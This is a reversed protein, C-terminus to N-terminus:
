IGVKKLEEIFQSFSCYHVTRGSTEFTENLVSVYKKDHVVYFDVENLYIVQKFDPFDQSEPKRGSTVYRRALTKWYENLLQVSTLNDFAEQDSIQSSLQKPVLFGECIAYWFETYWEQSNFLAPAIYTDWESSTICDIQIGTFQYTTNSLDDALNAASHAFNFAPQSTELLAQVNIKQKLEELSNSEIIVKRLRYYDDSYPQQKLGLYDRIEAELFTNPNSLFRNGCFSHITQFIGRFRNFDESIHNAIELLNVASDYILIKGTSLSKRVFSSQCSDIIGDHIHYYINTDFHVKLKM